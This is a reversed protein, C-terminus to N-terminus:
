VSLFLKLLGFFHPNSTRAGCRCEELSFLRKVSNPNPRVICFIVVYEQLIPKTFGEATGKVTQLSSFEKSTIEQKMSLANILYRYQAPFQGGAKPTRWKSLECQIPIKISMKRLMQPLTTEMLSYTHQKTVFM